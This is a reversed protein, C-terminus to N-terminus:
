CCFYIFQASARRLRSLGPSSRLFRRQLAVLHAAASAAPGPTKTAPRWAGGVKGPSPSERTPVLWRHAGLLCLARLGLGADGGGAWGPCPTGVSGPLVEWPQLAYARHLPRPPCLAFSGSPPAMAPSLLPDPRPSWPSVARPRTTDGPLAALSVLFHLQSLAAAAGAVGDSHHM